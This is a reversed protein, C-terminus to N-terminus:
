PAARYGHNLCDSIKPSSVESEFRHIQDKGIEDDSKDPAAAFGIV